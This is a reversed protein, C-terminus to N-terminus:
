RGRGRILIREIGEIVYFLAVGMVSLLIIGAFARSTNLQGQAITVIYGLGTNGGIFEGVVAGVLALTIGLKLGAFVDPLAAPLRVTWFIRLSNAGTSRGFDVLGKEIHVLGVVTNIVVPFIALLAAIVVRPTSGLGFWALFIPAVAVKPVAQSMVLVPYLAKELLVSSAIVVAIVIGVVAAIAFGVITEVLSVLSHEWLTSGGNYIAVVVDTPSPLIYNPMDFAVVIAWWVLVTAFLAGGTIILHGVSSNTLRKLLTPRKYTNALTDEGEADSELYANTTM